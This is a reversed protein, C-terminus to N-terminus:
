VQLLIIFKCGQNSESICKIEGNFTSTVLNYIINLGLGSGGNDRNTTFFPDFIKPLDEGAIGIGNDIYIISLTTRELRVQISVNGDDVGKFAHSISNMLLNTIIQSFAGPFSNISIGIPCDINVQIDTKKVVSHVSTLIEVLYKKVDFLRKEESTQDVAIQKFSRVLQAAKELNVHM